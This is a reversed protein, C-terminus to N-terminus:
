LFKVGTLKESIEWLEKANAENIASNSTATEQEKDFYKGNIKGATEDRALYLTTKAGDRASIMFPRIVTLMANMAGGANNGFNTAVVGPHLCNVIINLKNKELRRALEQTFLINYLKSNSYAKMPSYGSELQLNTSDFKGGSHVKSSVNIIRAAKSKKLKELLLATLLFHALHNTAFTLEFGDISLQRKAGTMLGANNILIDIRPYSKNIQAAAKLVDDLSSLDAILVDVNNNKTEEKIQQQTALTKLKDRGHVIVHAGDRALALATEKGIGSTAGTILIIQVPSDRIQASSSNAKNLSKRSKKM